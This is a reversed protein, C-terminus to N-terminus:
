KFWKKLKKGIMISIQKDNYDKRITGDKKFFAVYRYCRNFELKKWGTTKFNIQLEDEDIEELEEGEIVVRLLGKRNAFSISPFYKMTTNLVKIIRSRNSIKRTEFLFVRFEAFPKPTKKKPKSAYFMKVLSNRYYRSILEWIFGFIRKGRHTGKYSRIIKQKGHLVIFRKLASKRSKARIRSKRRKM